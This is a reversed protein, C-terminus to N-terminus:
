AQELKYVASPHTILPGGIPLRSTLRVYGPLTVRDVVVIIESLVPVVVTQWDGILGTTGALGETIRQAPTGSLTLRGGEQTRRSSGPKISTKQTSTSLDTGLAWAMYETRGGGDQVALEADVFAEDSGRDAVAYTGAGIGSASALGSLNNGQGDGSLVQELLRDAIGIRHAELVADLTDDGTQIALQLSIESKSEVVSSM